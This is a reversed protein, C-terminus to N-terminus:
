GLMDRYTGNNGADLWALYKEADERLLTAHHGQFSLNTVYVWRGGAHAGACYFKHLGTAPILVNISPDHEMRDLHDTIREAIVSLLLKAAM